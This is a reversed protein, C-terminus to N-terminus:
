VFVHDRLRSFADAVDSTPLALNMRIHHPGHFPRGDQWGVGVDWGAALVDDLAKGHKECYDACNLFLMYTGQPPQVSVGPLEERICKVALRANESLVGCLQQVWARGEETYAGELAVMSLLNMDNYGTKRGAATIRDRLAPDYIVHYSGVLGALNFTKSPAYFAATHAKAYPSITQLPVHHAGDLLLDSWIEDSLVDVRYKAFLDYMETLEKRTFVRGTPNHPNCSVFVHIHYKQIKAEMDALDMRFTGSEDQVMDSTIIRYGADRITRTFGIYTPSLLLVCEGPAALARLGSSIGGLVGNEYGIAEKPVEVGNQMEQWRQIAGFYADGTMFYGYAPHKARELIKETIGPFAAFNMDAVWMPLYTWGDKPPRPAGKMVGVADLALADTGSRELRTTFDFNM